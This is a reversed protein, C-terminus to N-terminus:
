LRAPAQSALEEMGHGFKTRLEFLLLNEQPTEDIDSRLDEGNGGRAGARLGHLLAALLGSFDYFNRVVKAMGGPQPDLAVEIANAVIGVLEAIAEGLVEELGRHLAQFVADNLFLQIVFM